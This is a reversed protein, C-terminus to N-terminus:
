PEAKLQQPALVLHSKGLFVMVTGRNEIRFGEAKITGFPGHGEVPDSGEATGKGMDIHASDTHFENGKDQFLDVEGFMDLLQSQPQYLGTYSNVALWTGSETTMDAKPGDLEVVDDKGPRQRATEATITFPRDHRDVGAYRMNVMRLDRAERIDLRPFPLRVREVAAQIRPWVAVLLLLALASAPMLLKMRSVFRSYREVRQPALARRGMRDSFTSPREAPVARAAIEPEVTM